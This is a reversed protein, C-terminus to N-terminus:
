KWDKLILKIFDSQEVKTKIQAKEHKAVRKSTKAELCSKESQLKHCYM